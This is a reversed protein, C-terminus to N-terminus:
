LFSRGSQCNSQDSNNPLLKLWGTSMCYSQMTSTFIDPSNADNISFLLYFQKVPICVNCVSSAILLYIYSINDVLIAFIWSVNKRTM